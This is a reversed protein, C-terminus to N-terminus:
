KEIRGTACFSYYIQPKKDSFFNNCKKTLAFKHTVHGNSSIEREVSEQVPLFSGTCRGNFNEIKMKTTLKWLEITIIIHIIYWLACLPSILHHYTYLM